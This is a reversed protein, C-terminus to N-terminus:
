PQHAERSHRGPQLAHGPPVAILQVPLQAKSYAIVAQPHIPQQELSQDRREFVQQAIGDVM